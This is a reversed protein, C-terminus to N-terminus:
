PILYVHAYWSHGPAECSADMAGQACALVFVVVVVFVCLSVYADLVAAKLTADALSKAMLNRREVEDSIDRVYGVVMGNEVQNLGVIVPFETQDRRRATLERRTGMLKTRGTTRYAHLYQDHQAAHAAGVIISINQGILSAEDPYQFTELCARNVTVIIGMSDIALMSDFSANLMAAQLNQHSQLQAAQKSIHLNDVVARRALNWSTKASAKEKDTYTRKQKNNPAATAKAPIAPEDKKPSEKEQLVDLCAKRGYKEVLVRMEAQLVLDSM